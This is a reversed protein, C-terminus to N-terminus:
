TRRTINLNFSEIFNYRHKWMCHTIFSGYFSIISELSKLQSEYVKHAPDKNPLKKYM